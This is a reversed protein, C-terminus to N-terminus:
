VHWKSVDNNHASLLHNKELLHGQMHEWRKRARAHVQPLPFNVYADQPIQMEAKVSM